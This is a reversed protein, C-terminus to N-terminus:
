LLVKNENNKNVTNKKSLFYIPLYYTLMWEFQWAQWAGSYNHYFGLSSAVRSLLTEVTPMGAFIAIPVQLGSTIFFYKFRDPWNKLLLGGALSMLFSCIILPAPSSEFLGGNFLIDWPQDNFLIFYTFLDVAIFAIYRLIFKTQLIMRSSLILILAFCTSVFFGHRRDLDPALIYISVLSFILLIWDYNSRRSM